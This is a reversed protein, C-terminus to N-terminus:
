EIVPEDSTPEPSVFDSLPIDGRLWGFVKDTGGGLILLGTPGKWRVRDILEHTYEGVVGEGPRLTSVFRAWAIQANRRYSYEANQPTIAALAEVFALATEYRAADSAAERDDRRLVRERWAPGYITAAAGSVAVVSSGFFAFLAVLAVDSM